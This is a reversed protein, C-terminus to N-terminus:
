GDDADPQEKEEGKDGDKLIRLNLPGSTDLHVDRQPFAIVIGAERFLRDIRFRLDSEIMRRDMPRQIRIWFYVDFILANDGFDNFLVFPEREKLVKGHGSVAELMLEKVQRTDSGYALGVTIDARIEQDSLTWNIINKELFSSNPVLLHINGATRIRTCRAGIEEIVGYNNEVEIFDGIKVPREVMIIFGSIFNNILNQAGFGVGIAIAGGFLTFVTLPINVTKLVFLVLVVLTVYYMVKQIAAAASQDLSSVSLLRKGIIHTIRRLLVMGIILILLAIVVKKVTVPREDIVWLELDWLSQIRTGLGQLTDKVSAKQQRVNIEDILRQELERGDLLISLFEDYREGMKELADLRTELHQRIAPDLDERSFQKEIPVIRSKLNTQNSQFLYIGNEFKKIREEAEKRWLSVQNYEVDPDLLAYRRQWTQGKINLIHLMLETQELVKQYTERWAERAELFGAARMRVTEDAGRVAEVERQAELWKDEVGRQEQILTETRDRLEKRRAELKALHQDLDDQNFSLNSRVWDVRKQAINTRLQALRLETEANENVIRQVDLNAGALEAELGAFEFGWNLLLSGEPAAGTELQEKIKRIAQGALDVRTKADELWKKLFKLTTNATDGQQKAATLQDLFVDYQSLSYPPPESIVSEVQSALAENLSAEEQELSDRRKITTLYRQSLAELERLKTTREQLDALAVGLQQATQENEESVAAKLKEKVEALRTEMRAADIVPSAKGEGEGPTAQEEGCVALPAAWFALLLALILTIIHHRKNFSETPM